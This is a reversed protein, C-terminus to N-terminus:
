QPKSSYESGVTENEREGVKKRKRERFVYVLDGPKFTEHTRSRARAARDCAEKAKVKVFAEAAIQRIELTRQMEESASAEVLEPDLFDDSMLSGPLRPNQGLHRPAPTFGSRHYLRNKAAETERLATSWEGLDTPCVEERVREFLLKALGGQRETIGQQWPARSGIQRTVIGRDAARRCFEKSFESGADTVIIELPRFHRAWCKWFKRWAEEATKERMPELAQYGSGWDVVNLVPRLKRPDVDPVFM